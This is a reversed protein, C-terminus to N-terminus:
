QLVVLHPTPPTHFNPTSQGPHPTLHPFQPQLAQRQHLVVPASPNAHTCGFLVLLLFLLTCHHETCLLTVSSLLITVQEGQAGRWTPIWSVALQFSAAAGWVAREAVKTKAAVAVSDAAVAATAAATSPADEALTASLTALAMAGSPLEIVNWTLCRECKQM